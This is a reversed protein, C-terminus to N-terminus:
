PLNSKFTFPNERWTPNVKSREINLEVNVPREGPVYFVMTSPIQIDDNESFDGYKKQFLLVGGPTLWSEEIVIRRRPMLTYRHVQMDEFVDVVWVSDDGVAEFNLTPETTDPPIPLPTFLTFPDTKPMPIGTLRQLDLTDVLGAYMEGSGLMVEFRGDNIVLSGARMNFPGFLETYLKGSTDYLYSGFLGGSLISTRMSISYTAEFRELKDYASSIMWRAADPSPPPLPMEKPYRSCGILLAGLLTLM